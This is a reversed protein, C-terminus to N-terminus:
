LNEILTVLKEGVSRVVQERNGAAIQERICTIADNTNGDLVAVYIMDAFGELTNPLSEIISASLDPQAERYFRNDATTSM